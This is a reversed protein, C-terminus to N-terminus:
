EASQYVKITRDIREAISGPQKGERMVSLTIECERPEGTTNEEATISLEKMTGDDSRIFVKTDIWECEESAESWSGSYCYDVKQNGGAADFRVEFTSVTLHLPIIVEEKACSALAM